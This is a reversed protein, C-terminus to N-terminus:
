VVEKLLVQRISEYYTGGIYLEIDKKHHRVVISRNSRDIRKIKHVNVVIDRSIKLFDAPLLEMLKILPTDSPIIAGDSDTMLLVGGEGDVKVWSIDPIEVRFYQERSKFFLVKSPEDGTKPALVFAQNYANKAEIEKRVAQLCQRLKEDMNEVFPKILYKVICDRYDNISETGYELHGTTIITPPLTTGSQRLQNLVSFANGGILEIDLFVVDPKLNQIVEVAKAAVGTSAIVTCDPQANLAGCLLERANEEDEVVISCLKIYNTSNM